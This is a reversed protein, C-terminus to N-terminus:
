KRNKSLFAAVNNEMVETHVKMSGSITTAHSLSTATYIMMQRVTEWELIWATADREGSHVMGQLIRSQLSANLKSLAVLAESLVPNNKHPMASSKGGGGALEEVEGIENQSMVLIDAGMKGAVSSYMALWNTFEALSDRQVHWSTASNLALQSALEDVLAKGNPKFFSLDGVAGGLQVKLLRPAIVKWNDHLREFPELWSRIRDGFSIPAALQGRTRAMCKVSGYMSDLNRLKSELEGWMTTLHDVGAMIILIQATDLTDQSTAGYHLYPKADEVLQNRVISLLSTVPIGDRLTGEALDAPKIKVKNVANIISEAAFSPIIGLKQQAKALGAEFRLMKEILSEDSVVAVMKENSLYKSYIASQYNM